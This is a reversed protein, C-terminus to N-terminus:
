SSIDGAVEDRESRGHHEPSGASERLKQRKRDEAQDHDARACEAEKQGRDTQRDKARHEGELHQKQRCAGSTGDAKPGNTWPSLQCAIQVPMIRTAAKAM